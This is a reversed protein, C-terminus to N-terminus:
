FVESLIRPLPPLSVLSLLQYTEMNQDVGM